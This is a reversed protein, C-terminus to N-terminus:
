ELAFIANLIDHRGVIGVTKGDRRVPFSHIGKEVVLRVIEELPTQPDIFVIDRSMVERVPVDKFPAIRELFGQTRRGGAANDILRFLDTMTVIGVIGIDKSVVPFGSVGDRLMLHAVHRILMDDYIVVLHDSMIDGAKIM